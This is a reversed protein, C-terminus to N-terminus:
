LERETQARTPLRHTDGIDVDNARALVALATIVAGLLEAHRDMRKEMRWMFWVAVVVPFAYNGLVEM